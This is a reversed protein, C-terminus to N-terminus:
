LTEVPIQNNVKAIVSSAPEVTELEIVQGMGISNLFEQKRQKNLAFAETKNQCTTYTGNSHDLVQCITDEPDDQQVARWMHDTGIIFTACVNFRSAENVLITACKEELFAEADQKTGVKFNGQIYKNSTLSDITAQDPVFYTPLPENFANVRFIM